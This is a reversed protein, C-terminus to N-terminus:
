QGAGQCGCSPPNPVSARPGECEAALLTQQAGFLTSSIYSYAVGAVVDTPSTPLTLQIFGDIYDNPLGPINCPIIKNLEHPLTITVSKAMENDNYALVTIPIPQKKSNVYPDVLWVVITTGANYTPDMWYRADLTNGARTGYSLNTVEMNTRTFGSNIDSNALPIVPVFIADKKATDVLFANASIKFNESATAFVLYGSVKDLNRGSNAKWSFPVLDDDTCPLVGDTVHQSDVDFFTWYIQTKNTKTDVNHGTCGQTTDQCILGVVTDISAGDHYVSPVLVGREYVGLEIAQVQVAMLMLALIAFLGTIKKM